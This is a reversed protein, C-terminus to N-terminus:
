LKHFIPKRQEFTCVYGFVERAIDLAGDIYKGVNEPVHSDSGVTIIEGGLERFRKIFDRTPLFIGCRDVGSTNIEMGKGNQVLTKMIEDFIDSFDAYHLPAHTPNNPSKCVYNIHGLVDFDANTRVCELVKLVYEEFAKEVTKGEWYEKLYPDQDGLYHVSGIVFDFDYGASLRTLEDKNWCTLGFEIGRRIKLSDSSLTDYARIYEDLDFPGALERPEDYYDFHDTFCIEKLGAREAAAVMDAPESQSDFSIKSHMHYDFM